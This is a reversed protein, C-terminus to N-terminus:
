PRQGRQDRPRAWMPLLLHLLCAAFWSGDSGLKSRELLPTGYPSGEPRTARIPLLLHLPSGRGLSGDSGLKSREPLPTGYPSAEPRTARMPLLPHLPSGRVPSADSGLKSREPLPTRYPSAEPRTALDQSLLRIDPLAYARAAVRSFSGRASVPGDTARRSHHALPPVSDLVLSGRDAFGPTSGIFPKKLPTSKPKGQGFFLSWAAGTLSVKNPREIASFEPTCPLEFILATFCLRRSACRHPLATKGAACHLNLRKPTMEM